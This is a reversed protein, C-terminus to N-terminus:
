NLRLVFPCQEAVRPPKGKMKSGTNTWACTIPLQYSSTLGPLQYSSTLGPLQYSSTLGPLQYSSTLGPLQYSSTLGPLQYSSTLGPLQYSSTLGSSINAGWCHDNCAHPPWASLGNDLWLTDNLLGRALSKLKSLLINAQMFHWQHCTM